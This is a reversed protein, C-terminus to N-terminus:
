NDGVLDFSRKMSRYTAQLADQDSMDRLPQNFPEARVPGDYGISILASLFAKLDIVGTASPLERKGDIQEDATYGSRADNLDVAVIDQNNLTLLDDKTEGACYWHFSDLVVGVNPRDMEGILEKTEALTRIFSYKGRAQLTRPGVYELGLRVDQDELIEAVQGLRQIHQKFNERYTLEHDFSLIWTNMRTAGAKKMAKVYEPLPDIGEKFTAEDKRFDVPLGASGWKIKNSKMEGTFEQIEQDSMKSLSQADASIAEFGHEIAMELLQQPTAKVGINGANLCLTFKRSKTSRIMSHIPTTLLSTGAFIASSYIFSRRNIM